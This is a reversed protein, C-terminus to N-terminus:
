AAKIRQWQVNWVKEGDGLPKQFRVREVVEDSPYLIPSEAIKDDIFNRAEDMCFAVGLTNVFNAYTKPEYMHNFFDWVVPLHDSTNIPVWTDLYSHVGDEPAVWVIDENKQQALFVDYDWDMAIAVSGDILGKSLDTSVFSKLHPKLEIVKDAAKRVVSEDTSSLDDGNALLAAGIPYLPFDLFTIKGSYKEAVKWVDAWSKLDEDVLDRRYAFGTKGYDTAVAKAGDDAAYGIKFPKDVKAYNPVKSLDVDAAVGLDVLRQVQNEVLLMVDAAQRDTALKAIRDNDVPIGLQKVKSGPHAKAFSKLQKDGVWDPYGGLTITGSTLQKVDPKSSSEDDGGCASLIGGSMSLLVTGGAVTMFRRRNMMNRQEVARELQRLEEPPLGNRRMTM